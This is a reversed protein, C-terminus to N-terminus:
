RSLATKLVELNGEMINLYDAGELVDKMTKSQMSDLTLIERNKSVTNDRVAEAIRGDSTEIKMISNLSNSDIKESLFIITEFSAETEASCGSFAAYYGLGYDDVLYRFPFRDRFVLLRVDSSEVANEYREDLEDLKATYKELNSLYVDKHEGDVSILAEAIAECSKKANNLSLWVHEDYETDEDHEDEPEMGEVQEEERIEDKLVEMLDVKVASSNGNRDFAEMLTRDSMGGVYIFIDCDGMALMDDATLQYNHLDAGNDMLLILEVEDEMEGLINRTWDYEPFITAIIKIKKEK